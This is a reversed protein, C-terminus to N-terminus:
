SRIVTCHDGGGGEQLHELQVLDLLDMVPEHHDTWTPTALGHSPSHQQLGQLLELSHLTHGVDYIGLYRICSPTHGLDYNGLYRICSPTHGVDYIGFYCICSPTHGM